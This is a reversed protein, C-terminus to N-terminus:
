QVITADSPIASVITYQLPNETNTRLYVKGYSLRNFKIYINDGKYAITFLNKNVESIIRMCDVNWHSSIIRSYALEENTHLGVVEIIYFQSASINRTIEIVKTSPNADAFIQM